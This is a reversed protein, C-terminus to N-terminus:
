HPRGKLFSYLALFGIVAIAIGALTWALQRGRVSGIAAGFCAGPLVVLLWRSVHDFADISCGLAHAFGFLRRYSDSNEFDPLLVISAVGLSAWFVCRLLNWHAITGHPTKM